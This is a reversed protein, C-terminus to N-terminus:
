EKYRGYAFNSHVYMIDALKITLVTVGLIVIDM